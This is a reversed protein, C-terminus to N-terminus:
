ETDADSFEAEGVDVTMDRYGSAIVGYGIDLFDLLVVKVGAKLPTPQGIELPDRVVEVIGTDRDFTKRIAVASLGRMRTTDDEKVTLEVVADPQDFRYGTFEVVWCGTYSQLQDTGDSAITSVPTRTSDEPPPVLEPHTLPNGLTVQLEDSRLSMAGQSSRILIQKFEEATATVPIPETLNHDDNNNFLPVDELQPNPRFTGQLMFASEPVFNIGVVSVVFVRPSEVAQLLAALAHGGAWLDQLLIARAPPRLQNRPRFRTGGQLTTTSSQGIQRYWNVTDELDRVFRADGTVFIQDLM